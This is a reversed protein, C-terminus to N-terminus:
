GPIRERLEISNCSKARLGPLRERDKERAVALSTLTRKPLRIGRIEYLVAGHELQGMVAAPIAGIGTPEAHHPGLHGHHTHALSISIAM